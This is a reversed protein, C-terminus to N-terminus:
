AQRGEINAIRRDHSEAIRALARIDVADRNTVEVLTAVSATLQDVKGTLQDVSAAVHEVLRWTDATRDRLMEVSETLAEHRATLRDLREDITM